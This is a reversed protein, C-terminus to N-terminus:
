DKSFFEALYTRLVYGESAATAFLRHLSTLGHSRKRESGALNVNSDASRHM